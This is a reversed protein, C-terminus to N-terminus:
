KAISRSAEGSKPNKGRKEEKLPLVLTTLSAPVTANSTFEVIRQSNLKYIVNELWTVCNPNRRMPVPHGPAETSECVEKLQGFKSAPVTGLLVPTRAKSSLAPIYNEKLEYKMQKYKRQNTGTDIVHFLYGSGKPDLCVFLGVHDVPVSLFPLKYVNYKPTSSSSM